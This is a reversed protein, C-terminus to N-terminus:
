HELCGGNQPTCLFPHKQPVSESASASEQLAEWAVDAAAAAAALSDTSSALHTGKQPVLQSSAMSATPMTGNGRAVQTLFPAWDVKM